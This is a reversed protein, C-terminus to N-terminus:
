QRDTGKPPLYRTILAEKLKARRSSYETELIGKKEFLDDLDAVAVLMDKTSENAYVVVSPKSTTSTLLPRAGFFLAHILLSLLVLSVLAPIALLRYRELGLTRHTQQWFSPEPLDLLEISLISNAEISEAEWVRYATDGIVAPTAERLNPGQATGFSTPLLVRFSDSGQPFSRSLTATDGVYPFHYTFAIQHSGPLVPSTMGFGSGVNIIDGGSLNSQVELESTEPPLSFRLFSMNSPPTLSPQFTRDYSNTVLVVELATVERRSQNIGHIFWIHSDVNLAKLDETIDYIKLTPLPQTLPINLLQSYHVNEYSTSITYVKSDDLSVGEFSYFGTSDSTTSETVLSGTSDFIHLTIDLKLPLVGEKSGNVVQGEIVIPQDAAVGHHMVLWVACSLLALIARLLTRSEILSVRVMPDLTLQM